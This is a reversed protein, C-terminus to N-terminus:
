RPAYSLLTDSLAGGEQIPQNRQRGHEAVSLASGGKGPYGGSAARPAQPAHNGSASCTQHRRRPGSYTSLAKASGGTSAPRSASGGTSPSGGSAALPSLWLGSASGGSAQPRLRLALARPLEERAPQNERCTIMPPGVVLQLQCPLNLKAQHPTARARARPQPMSPLDSGAKCSFESKTLRVV